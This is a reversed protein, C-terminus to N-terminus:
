PGKMVANEAATNHPPGGRLVSEAQCLSVAPRGRHGVSNCWCTGGFHRNLVVEWAKRHRRPPPRDQNTEGRAVPDRINEKGTVHVGCCQNNSVAPCCFYIYNALSQCLLEGNLDGDYDDYNGEGNLGAPCFDNGAMVVCYWDDCNAM